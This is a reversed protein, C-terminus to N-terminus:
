RRVEGPYRDSGMSQVLDKRQRTFRRGKRMGKDSDSSPIRDCEDLYAIGLKYIDIGVIKRGLLRSELLIAVDCEIFAYTTDVIALGSLIRCCDRVTTAHSVPGDANLWLSASAQWPIQNIMIM